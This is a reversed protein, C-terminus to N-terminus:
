ELDDDDFEDDEETEDKEAEINLMTRAERELAKV